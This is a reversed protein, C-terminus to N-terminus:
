PRIGQSRGAAAATALAATAPTLNDSYVGRAGKEVLDRAKAADNITHSFVAVGAPIAGPSLRDAREETLTIAQIHAQAAYTFIQGTTLASRYSTFIAGAFPKERLWLIQDFHYIQPILAGARAGAQQTILSYTDYFDDKVDLVLRVDPHRDLVDLLDQFYCPQGGQGEVVNLYATMSVPDTDGHHCILTGETTKRIDVELLRVGASVSQELAAISNPPTGGRKGLAHAIILVDTGDLWDYAGPPPPPFNQPLDPLAEGHYLRRLGGKFAIADLGVLGDKLHRGPWLVGATMLVALLAASAIVARCRM